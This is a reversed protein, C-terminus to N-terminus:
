SMQPPTIACPQLVFGRAIWMPCEPLRRHRQCWCRTNLNFIPNSFDAIEAAREDRPLFLLDCASAKLCAIAQPPTSHEVIALQVGVRQSFARAIEVWVSRLQGTAPDKVYQPLFLGVRVKGTRALDAIRADSPQQAQAAIGFLALAFLISPIVTPLITRPREM